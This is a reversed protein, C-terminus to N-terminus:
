YVQIRENLLLSEVAFAIARSVEGVTTAERNEYWHGILLLMAQRIPASVAAPQAWGAVFRVAIGNVVQLEDGPWSAGSKLVLRAPASLVDVVYNSAAFVHTGGDADTYTVSTVGQVPSRPLILEGDEPWNDLYHELTQEILARNCVTEVYVRAAAIYGSILTDDDALDIRCHLKAEALSIPEQTPPTVVKLPM